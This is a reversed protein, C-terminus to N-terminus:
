QITIVTGSAVVTCLFYFYGQPADFGTRVCSGGNDANVANAWATTNVRVNGALYADLKVSTDGCLSFPGPGTGIVGAANCTENVYEVSAYFAPGDVTFTIGGDCQNKEKPANRTPSGSTPHECSQNKQAKDGNPNRAFRVDTDPAVVTSVDSCATGAFLVVIALLGLSRTTM